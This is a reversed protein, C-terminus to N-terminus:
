KKKKKNKAKMDERKFPAPSGIDFDDNEGDNANDCDISAINAINQDMLGNTQMKPFKQESKEQTEDQKKKLAKFLKSEAKDDKKNNCNNNEANIKISDKSNALSKISSIFDRLKYTKCLLNFSNYIAGNSYFVLQKLSKKEKEDIEEKKNLYYLLYLLKATDTTLTRLTNQWENDDM